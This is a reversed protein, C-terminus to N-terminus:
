KFKGIITLDYAYGDMGQIGGTYPQIAVDSLVGDFINNDFAVRINTGKQKNAQFFAALNGTSQNNCLVGKPWSIGQFTLTTVKDGFYTKYLVGSLSQDIQMNRSYGARISILHMSRVDGGTAEVTCPTGARKSDKIPAAQAKEFIYNNAM